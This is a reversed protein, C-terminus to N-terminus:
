TRGSRAQGFFEQLLSLIAEKTPVLHPDAIGQAKAEQVIAQETSLKWASWAKRVEEVGMTIQINSAAVGEPTAPGLPPNDGMVQEMPVAGSQVM